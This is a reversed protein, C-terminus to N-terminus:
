HNTTLKTLISILQPTDETYERLNEIEKLFSDKKIHYSSKTKFIKQYRTALMNEKDSFINEFLKEGVRPKTYVIPIDKNPKLGSLKILEKALESIKIPKGMDLVFIEGGEGSAAAELVLLCAEPATMFYRAMRPHTVTLAVRRNIQEQFIPLVSGRSGLVNGFRVSIFKTASTENLALMIMEALKKTRGMVSIPNVAKDTSILIFKEVGASIAAKAVSFTGFVNTMVAEEPFKEMLPVHKYAAAHFIIHPRIEELLFRIKKGNRVDAIIPHLLPPNHKGDLSRAVDFLNSEEYDLLYLHSPTFAHIQRCLESGISGAAGTILIKKGNMFRKIEETEIHAVKRGLLDEARIERLNQSPLTGNVMEYLSPLIKIDKIEAENALSITKKITKRSADPLAVILTEINYTRAIEPLRAIDGIVRIGHLFTAHKEKDEELIGIIHYVSKKGKGKLIRILEEASANAGIILTKKFTSQSSTRNVIILIVRKASRLASLFLFLLFYHIIIISRPFGLFPPTRSTISYIGYFLFGSIITVNLLEMIEHLSVFSWTFSYLKRWFLLPITLLTGLLIYLYLYQEYRAPISGDFRLLFSFVMASAIIAIDAGLFLSIKKVREKM